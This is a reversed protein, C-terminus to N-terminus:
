SIEPSIPLDMHWFCIGKEHDLSLVIFPPAKRLCFVFFRRKEAFRKKRINRVDLRGLDEDEEYHFDDGLYYETPSVSMDVFTSQIMQM